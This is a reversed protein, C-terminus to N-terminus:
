NQSNASNWKGNKFCICWIYKITNNWKDSRKEYMYDNVWTTANKDKSVIEQFLFSSTQSLEFVFQMVFSFIVHRQM